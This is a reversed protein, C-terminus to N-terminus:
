APHGGRESGTRGSRRAIQHSRQLSLLGKTLGSLVPIHGYADATDRVTTPSPREAFWPYGVLM